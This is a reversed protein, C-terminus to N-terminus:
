PLYFHEKHLKLSQKDPSSLFSIINIRDTFKEKTIELLTRYIKKNISYTAPAQLANGEGLKKITKMLGIVSDQEINISELDIINENFGAQQLLATMQELTIFPFIHPRHPAGIKLEIEILLRRLELLSGSGAFNAIFLGNKELIESINKLFFQVESVRHMAYPFIILDFKVQKPLSAEFGSLTILPGDYLKKLKSIFFDEFNDTIVLIKYFHRNIPLLREILDGMVFRFFDSDEIIPKFKKKRLNILNQNFM